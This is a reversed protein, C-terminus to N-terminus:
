SLIKVNLFNILFVKAEPYVNGPKLPPYQFVISREIVQLRNTIDRANKQVQNILSEFKSIAHECKTIFDGIGLSNWNLRKEGPKLVRQLQSLHEDM